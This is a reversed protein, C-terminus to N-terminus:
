IKSSEDRKDQSNCDITRTINNSSNTMQERLSCSNRISLDQESCRVAAPCGLTLVFGPFGSGFTLSLKFAM